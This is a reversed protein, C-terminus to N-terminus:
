FRQVLKETASLAARLITRQEDTEAIEYATPVDKMASFRTLAFQLLIRVKGESIWNPHQSKLSLWGSSHGATEGREMALMAEGSGKYGMVMRFKTKMVKNLVM